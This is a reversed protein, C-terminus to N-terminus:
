LVIFKEDTKSLLKFFIIFFKSKLNDNFVFSNKFKYKLWFLKNMFSLLNICFQMESNDIGLFLSLLLKNFCITSLISLKILLSSSLKFFLFIKDLVSSFMLLLLSSYLFNNFLYLSLFDIPM